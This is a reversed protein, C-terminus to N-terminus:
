VNVPRVMPLSEWRRVCEAGIKEQLALIGALSKYHIRVSKAHMENFQDLLRMIWRNSIRQEYRSLGDILNKELLFPRVPQGAPMNKLAPLMMEEATKLMGKMAKHAERFIDLLERFQHHQMRDSTQSNLFSLAAQIPRDQKQLEFWIGQLELHFDYRRYLEEAVEQNIHLAMQFYIMFVKRDITELWQDDKELEKDVKKYLRKAADLAHFEGHFEIEDDKPRHWGNIIATLLNIEDIRRYYLQAHHKVEASYLTAHAESLETISWPRKAGDQALEALDKLILKRNDYLGQYRPNYTRDAHEDDIFGQVEEPEALIVDKPVKFYFRYLKYTVRERLDAVNDFLLWPSREDFVSRIYHAKANQELDYHSPHTSWLEAIKDGDDEFVQTTETPDDPLPPPEGLRPDKKKVRLYRAAAAQHYFMDATYLHHIMALRLDDMAQGFCENGFKMKYLSHVVADSGALTCAVQDAHFELQRMHAFLSYAVAYSMMGLTKRLLWLTALGLYAPWGFINDIQAWRRVFRDFIDESNVMKNVIDFAAGVFANIRMGKQTFHGFEHALVSKFETLNMCNVMGLGIILSKGTPIFLHFFSTVNSRAWANVNFDVYVHVPRQAGADDCVRHIFDFLKPHEDEFIEILFEKQAREYKFLNKLMYLGLVSAPIILIMAILKLHRPEAPCLFIAWLVYIGCFFMVGFYLLFFLALALLVVATQTKYESSPAAFDDPVDPPNPPYYSPAAM